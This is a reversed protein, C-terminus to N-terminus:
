SAADSFRKLIRVTMGAIESADRAKLLRRLEDDTPRRAGSGSSPIASGVLEHAIAAAAGGTSGVPLLFAGVSDAAAREAHVGGAVVLRDDVLKGGGLFVVAGSVRAMEGRLAAWQEDNPQSGDIPQSFPRVLLRRELDWSGSRQISELFGSLAAPAVTLGSGSVLNFGADGLASGM